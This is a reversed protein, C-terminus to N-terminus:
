GAGAVHLRHRAPSQLFPRVRRRERVDGATGGEGSRSAGAGGGGRDVCEPSRVSGDGDRSTRSHLRAGRSPRVM